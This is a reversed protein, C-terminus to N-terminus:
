KGFTLVTNERGDNLIVMNPLIRKVVKNGITGGVRYVEDNIIVTSQEGRVIIGSIRMAEKKEKPEKAPFFKSIFPNREITLPAIHEQAPTKEKKTVACEGILTTLNITASLSGNFNNKMEELTMDTVKLFQSFSELRNLYNVFDGYLSDIKIEIVLEAYEKKEKNARQRISSFDIPYGEAQHVLEGLLQPVSGQAPLEEERAALESKLSEFSRKASNLAEREKEIDPMQGKLRTLENSVRLYENKSARLSTSEAKYVFNYYFSFLIAAALILVLARQRKQLSEYQKKLNAFTEKLKLGM